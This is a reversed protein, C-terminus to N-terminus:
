PVNFRRFVATLGAILGGEHMWEWEKCTWYLQTNIPAVPYTWTFPQGDKAELFDYAAQLEDLEIGRLVANVTTPVEKTGNPAVQRYGEFEIEAPMLAVRGTTPKSVKWIFEDAPM